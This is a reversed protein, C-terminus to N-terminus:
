NDTLIQRPIYGSRDGIRADVFDNNSNGNPIEEAVEGAHAALYASYGLSWLNHGEQFNENVSYRRPAPQAPPPFPGTGVQPPPIAPQPNQNGPRNIDGMFNQMNSHIESPSNM